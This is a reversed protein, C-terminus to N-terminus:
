CCLSSSTVALCFSHEQTGGGVRSTVPRCFSHNQTSGVGLFSVSVPSFGYILDGGLISLEMGYMDVTGLSSM